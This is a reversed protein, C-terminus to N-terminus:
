QNFNSWFNKFLSLNLNKFSTEKDKLGYWYTLHNKLSKYDKSTSSSGGRPKSKEVGLTLKSSERSFM